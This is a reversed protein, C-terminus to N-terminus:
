SDTIGAISAVVVGAAGVLTLPLGLAVGVTTDALAGDGVSEFAEHIDLWQAGAMYAIVAGGVATLLMIANPGIWAGGGAWAALFGMVVVVALIATTDGDGLETGSLTLQPSLRVWPLFAAGVVVLASFVGIVTIATRPSEFAAAKPRNASEM